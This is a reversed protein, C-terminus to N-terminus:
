LCDGTDAASSLGRRPAISAPVRRGRPKKMNRNSSRQMAAAREGRGEGDSTVSIAAALSAKRRGYGSTASVRM